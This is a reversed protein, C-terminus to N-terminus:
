IKVEEIDIDIVEDETKEKPKDELYSVLIDLPVIIFVRNYIADKLRVSKKEIRGDLIDAIDKITLRKLDERELYDFFSKSFYVEGKKYFVQNQLNSLSLDQIIKEFTYTTPRGYIKNYIKLLQSLVEEILIEKYNEDKENSIDYLKYNKSINAEKYLEDLVFDMKEVYNENTVNSSLMKELFKYGLMNLHNNAHINKIAIDFDAAKLAITRKTSLDTNVEIFRTKLAPDDPLPFNSIFVLGARAEYTKIETNYKRTRIEFDQQAIKIMEIIDRDQFVGRPEDAAITFYGEDLSKAFMYQSSLQSGARKFVTPLVLQSIKILTSKGSRTPGYLYLYKLFTGQKKFWYHASLLVPYLILFAAKAKDPYFSLIEEFQKIAEPISTLKLEYGKISINGNEYYVGPRSDKILIVQNDRWKKNIFSFLAIELNERNIVFGTSYLADILYNPSAEVVKEGVTINEIILRIKGEETIGVGKIYFNAIIQEEGARKDYKIVAKEVKNNVFLVKKDEYCVEGVSQEILDEM